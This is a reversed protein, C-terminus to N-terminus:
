DDTLRVDIRLRIHGARKLRSRPITVPVALEVTPAPAEDLAVAQRSPAAPSAPGPEAPARGPREPAHAPREPASRPRPAPQQAKQPRPATEESPPSPAPAPAPKPEPPTLDVEIPEAHTETMWEPPSEPESSKRGFPDIVFEDNGDSDEDPINEFSLSTDRDSKPEQASATPQGPANSPRDAPKDAPRSAPSGGAQARQEKEAGPRPAPAAAPAPEASPAAQPRTGGEVERLASDVASSYHDDGPKGGEVPTATVEGRELKRRLENFLLGAIGQFTEHVGPGEVAVAEFAPVGLLNLQKELEVVPMADDLDRKNYQIVWPLNDLSMGYENLNDELNRLSELNEDMKARSSDAVFVVADAGKLVLKRTANYYVQGPVTYLLFRTRYGNIEGLELPLFDFFLTRDTRTKMSVLKGKSHVPMQEHIYELNTTKGSVGPGYYVIKANLEEGTHNLVVMIARAEESIAM